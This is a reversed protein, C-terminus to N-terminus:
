KKNWPAGYTYWARRALDQVVLKEAAPLNDYAVSGVHRHVFEAEHKKYLKALLADVKKEAAALRKAALAKAKKASKRAKEASKRAKAASKAM